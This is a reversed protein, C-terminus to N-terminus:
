DTPIISDCLRPSGCITSGWACHRMVQQAAMQDHRAERWHDGSSLGGGRGTHSLLPSFRARLPSVRPVQAQSLLEPAFFGVEHEFSSLHTQRTTHPETLSHRATIHRSVFYKQRERDFEAATLSASKLAAM